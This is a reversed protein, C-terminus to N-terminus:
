EIFTKPPLPEMTAALKYQWPGKLDITQGAASLRYPKDPIFGGRGTNDVVRVVIINKGAKLLNEPVDYKRPPYQYSVSGVFKGNVYTRDSDVVRGLLLRAPRGAM